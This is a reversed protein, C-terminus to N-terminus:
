NDIRPGEVKSLQFLLTTAARRKELQRALMNWVARGVIDLWV